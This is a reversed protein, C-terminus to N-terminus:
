CGLLNIFEGYRKEQYLLLLKEIKDILLESFPEDRGYLRDRGFPLMNYTDLLNPYDLKNAIGKHTLMLVKTKASDFNWGHNEELTKNSKIFM